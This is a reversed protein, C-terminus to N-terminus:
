SRRFGVNFRMVTATSAAPITVYLDGNQSLTAPTITGNSSHITGGASGESATFVPQNNADNTTFEVDADYDIDTVLYEVRSGSVIFYREGAIPFKIEGCLQTDINKAIGTSSWGDTLFNSIYSTEATQNGRIYFGLGKGDSGESTNFSTSRLGTITIFDNTNDYKIINGVSNAISFEGDKNLFLGVDSDNLSTRGVTGIFNQNIELGGIRGASGSITGSFVGDVAYLKGENSVHFDNRDSDFQLAPGISINGLSDVRFHNESDCAGVAITAGSISGSNVVLDNFTARGDGRIEFGSPNTSAGCNVNNFLFSKIVSDGPNIEDGLIITQRPEFSNATITGNISADQAYLRGDNTVLFKVDIVRWWDRRAGNLQSDHTYVGNRNPNPIASGDFKKRPPGIVPSNAFVTGFNNNYDESGRSVTPFNGQTLGRVEQQYIPRGGDDGVWYNIEIFGGGDAANDLRNLLDTYATNDLSPDNTYDEVNLQFKVPLADGSHGMNGTFFGSINLSQDGISLQGEEDVRFQSKPDAGIEITGATMNGRIELTNPVIDHGIKDRFTPQKFTEDALREGTWFLGQGGPSPDGIRFMLHDIYVGSGNAYSFKGESPIGKVYSDDSLIRGSPRALIFTNSTIRDTLIKGARVSEIYSDGIAGGTVYGLTHPTNTYKASTNDTHNTTSIGSVFGVGTNNSRDVTRLFYHYLVEQKPEQNKNESDVGYGSFIGSEVDSDIFATGPNLSYAYESENALFYGSIDETKWCYKNQSSNENLRGTPIGTKYVLIQASDSSVGNGWEWELYNQKPGSTIFFSNPNTPLTDDKPTRIPRFKNLPLIYQSYSGDKSNVRFRAFYDSNALLNNFIGSGTMNVAGYEIFSTDTGVLTSFDSTRSLQVKYSSQNYDVPQEIKYNIFAYSSGDGNEDNFIGSSFTIDAPSPNSPPSIFVQQGTNHNAPSSTNGISFDGTNNSTDVARLWFYLDQNQRGGFDRLPIVESNFRAEQHVFTGDATGTFNQHGTYLLIRSLDADPPNEWSLFLNNGNKVSEVWTPRGPPVDDFPVTFNRQTQPGLNGQLDSVRIGVNYERGGVGLYDYRGSCQPKVVGCNDVRPLSITEVFSNASNRIEVKYEKFDDDFNFDGSYFIAMYSNQVGDPNTKVDGSLFLEPANITDSISLPNNVDIADGINGAHDVARIHFEGDRSLTAPYSRGGYQNVPYVAFNTDTKILFDSDLPLPTSDKSGTYIRLHNLDKDSPNVWNFHINDFIKQVTFNSCPGPPTTDSEAQFFMIKEPSRGFSNAECWRLEYFASPNPLEFEGSLVGGTILCNDNNLDGYPNGFVDCGSIKLDAADLMIRSRKFNVEDRFEGEQYNTLSLGKNQEGGITAKNDISIGQPNDYLVKYDGCEQSGSILFQGNQLINEGNDITSLLNAYYVSDVERVRIEYRGDVADGNSYYKQNEATNHFYYSVRSRLQGETNVFGSPKIILDVTNEEPYGFVPLQPIIEGEPLPDFTVPDDVPDRPERIPESPFTPDTYVTSPLDTRDFKGSNYEVGIVSFMGDDLEQKKLLSYDKETFEGSQHGDGSGHLIYISGDLIKDTVNKREAGNRLNNLIGSNLFYDNLTKFGGAASIKSGTVTEKLILDELEHTLIKAGSPTNEIYNNLNTNSSSSSDLPIEVLSGRTGDDASGINLGNRHVFEKFQQTDEDFDRGPILFSISSFNYNGTDLNQDLLIYNDSVTNNDGVVEKVRGGSKIGNRLQDSISFVDGPQLYHASKDTVFSVTEEELTSTLLIWRGLRLAQDRSTCGVASIEKLILGYRIIGEADEVYEYKPLFSDDKDKYAVKIATFRAQKAAGVYNFIGDKVNDNNFKFLSEKPSNMSVFIENANFYAIGRFISAIENLAKIAEMANQFYINCTFRREKVFKQTKGAKSTEVLQDCYKAIKYLQWKDIKVDKVYEGVGYIDNTILDYFIWAPNDTWELEHKFSGNWNGVHRDERVPGDVGEGLDEYNSPVRVKKLKLDFTRTPINGLNDATFITGVYASHPYSLNSTTIETVSAFDASFNQKFNEREPTLNEIYIKRPRKGNLDKLKFFIDERYPSSAIGSVKLFVNHSNIGDDNIGSVVRGPMTRHHVGTIDGWIHFTGVNATQEGDSNILYCQNIAITLGIWDVDEDQVSHSGIYFKNVTTAGLKKSNYLATGKNLTKSTYSFDELWYFNDDAVKSSTGQGTFFGSQGVEGNKYAVSINRYNLQGDNSGIDTTMVPVDNIYIGKLIEAGSVLKGTYDVFGEIPGESVLDVAKFFSNSQLLERDRDSVNFAGTIERLFIKPKSNKAPSFINIAM